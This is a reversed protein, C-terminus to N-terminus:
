GFIILYYIPANCKEGCNYCTVEKEVNTCEFAKHGAKGCKYCSDGKKFDNAFHGLTGCKFCRVDAVNSKSGGGAEKQQFSPHKM